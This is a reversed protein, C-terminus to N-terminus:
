IRLASTSSGAWRALRGVPFQLGAKSARSVAKRRESAKGACVHVIAIPNTVCYSAAQRAQVHAAALEQEMCMSNSSMNTGAATPFDM